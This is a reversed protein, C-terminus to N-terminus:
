SRQSFVGDVKQFVPPLIGRERENRWIKLIRLHTFKGVCVLNLNSKVNERM